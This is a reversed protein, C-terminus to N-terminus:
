ISGKLKENDTKNARGFCIKASDYEGLKILLCGKKFNAM